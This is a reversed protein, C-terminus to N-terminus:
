NIFISLFIDFCMRVSFILLKFCRICVRVCKPSICKPSVCKPSVCKPSVCKPLVFKPSSHDIISEYEGLV